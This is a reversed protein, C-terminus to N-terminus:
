RDNDIITLITTNRRIIVDPDSTNVLIKLTQNGELAMDDVLVIDVCEAALNGSGSTFAVISQVSFYDTM